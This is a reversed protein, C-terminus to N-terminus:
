TLDLSDDNDQYLERVPGHLSNSHIIDLPFGHNGVYSLGKGSHFSRRRWHTPIVRGGTLRSPYTNHIIYHLKYDEHRVRQISESERSRNHNEANNRVSPTPESVGRRKQCEADRQVSPTASSASRRAPCQVDCQVSPTASSMQRRAPCEADRQVSPTAGSV